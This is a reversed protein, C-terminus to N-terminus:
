WRILKAASNQMVLSDFKALSKKHRVEMDFTM